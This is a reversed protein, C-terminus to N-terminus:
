KRLALVLIVAGIALMMLVGQNGAATVTGTVRAGAPAGQQTLGANSAEWRRYDLFQSNNAYQSALGMGYKLINTVDLGYSGPMGGGTDSPTPATSADPQVYTGDMQPGADGGTYLDGGGGQYDLLASM